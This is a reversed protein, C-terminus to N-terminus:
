RDPGPEPIRAPQPPDGEDPPPYPEPTRAPQPPNGEDPPPYPEPVSPPYPPNGEGPAPTPTPSGPDGPVEVMRVTETPQSGLRVGSIEEDAREVITAMEAEKERMAADLEELEARRAETAAADQEYVARGLDRLLGDRRRELQAIGARAAALERRARAKILFGEATASVRGRADRLAAHASSGGPEAADGRVVVLLSGALAVLGLVVLVTGVTGGDLVLVLAGAAVAAIGIAALALAPSLGFLERRSSSWSAPGPEPDGPPGPIVATLGPEDDALPTGCAPCFRSEPPVERGCAPCSPAQV